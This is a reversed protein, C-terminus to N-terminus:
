TPRKLTAQLHDQHLKDLLDERKSDLQKLPRPPVRDLIYATLLPIAVSLDTSITLDVQGGVKRYDERGVVGHGQMRDDGHGQRQTEAPSQGFSERAVPEIPAAPLAYARGAMRLRVDYSIGASPGLIRELHAPAGLLFNSATGRGLCWAACGFEAGGAANLIAAAQNLDRNTDVSLRNGVQALDAILSGLPGDAPSPNYIPVGLERASSLLNPFEVGLDKERMRLHRGMMNHLAASGMPRQFDPGSLIERLTAEAEERDRRRIFIGGGCDEGQQGDPPATRLLSKRLAFLADYYLNTGTVILWDVYGGKLLPVLASVASGGPILTGDISLGVLTEARSLVRATLVRAADALLGATSGLFANEILGSVSMGVEIPRPRIVSSEFAPPQETM